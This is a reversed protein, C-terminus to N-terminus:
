IDESECYVYKVYCAKDRVSKKHTPFQEREGERERGRDPEREM